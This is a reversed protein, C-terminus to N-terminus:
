RDPRALTFKGPMQRLAPEESACQQKLRAQAKPYRPNHPFRRSMLRALSVYRCADGPAHDVELLLADAAQPAAIRCKSLCRELYGIGQQRDGSFDILVTLWRLLVPVSGTFYEFLGLILYGEEFDPREELLQQMAIRSSRGYRYAQLWHGQEMLLRGAIARATALSSRAAFDDPHHELFALDRSIVSELAVLPKDYKVPDLAVSYDAEAVEMIAHYLPLAPGKPETSRWASLRARALPLNWDLLAEVVARASSAEDAQALQPQWLLAVALLLAPIRRIKM